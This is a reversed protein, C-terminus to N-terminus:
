LNTSVKNHKELRVIDSDVSTTNILKTSDNIDDIDEYTFINRENKCKSHYSYLLSCLYLFSLGLTAVLLFLEPQIQITCAFACPLTYNELMPVYTSNLDINLCFETTFTRQDVCYFGLDLYTVYIVMFLKALIMTLVFLVLTMTVWESNEKFPTKKNIYIIFLFLFINVIFSYLYADYLPQVNIHPKCFQYSYISPVWITNEVQTDSCLYLNEPKLLVLISYSTFIFKAFVTIDSLLHWHPRMRIIWRKLPSLIIRYLINKGM